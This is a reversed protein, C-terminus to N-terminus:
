VEGPHNWDTEEDKTLTTRKKGSNESDLNKSSKALKMTAQVVRESTCQITPNTPRVNVIHPSYMMMCTTKIYKGKVYGWYAADSKAALSKARLAKAAPQM